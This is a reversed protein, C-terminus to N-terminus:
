RRLNVVRDLERVFSPFSGVPIRAGAAKRLGGGVGGLKEAIEAVIAGLDLDERITRLSLDIFKEREEGAIGVAVDYKARAYLAAKGTSWPVNLVYAIEGYRAARRLVEKRMEEDVAAEQIAREVLEPLESPLKNESLHEVIRRKFSYRRRAREIGQVLIGTEFYLERKDWIRLLRRISPTDDFYDAIAGYVAIRSMEENLCGRFFHFALDSASRGEEHVLETVAEKLHKEMGRLPHHDVYIVMYKESLSALKKVLQPLHRTTAAIDLIVLDGDVVNLDSLLGAPHTFFVQAGPSAALALAASCIGDCDGHALIWELKM